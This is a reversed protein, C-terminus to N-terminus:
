MGGKWGTVSGRNSNESDCLLNGNGIQKVCPMTFKQTVIDM